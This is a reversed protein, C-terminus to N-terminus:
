EDPLRRALFQATLLRIGAMVLPIPFLVRPDGTVRSRLAYALFIAGIGIWFGGRAVAHLVFLTRVRPPDEPRVHSMTRAGGVVGAVVLVGGAIAEVVELATM